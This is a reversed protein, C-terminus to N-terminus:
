SNQRDEICHCVVWAQTRLIVTDDFIKVAWYGL